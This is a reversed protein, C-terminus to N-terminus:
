RGSRSAIGTPNTVNANNQMNLPSHDEANQPVMSLLPKLTFPAPSNDPSPEVSIVVAAGRLDTPFNLGAPANTLFDEGPYNPGPQTGSFLAAEDAAAVDTFTGTSVPVGEIVAWGEYKWGKPLDPLDLGASPGGTPDLWWVGSTEHNDAGDTPTALIYQGTSGTFDNGLASRHDVTLSATSEGFDGALIHVDSPAPDNDPSPEITLVFAGANALQNRDIEFSSQDPVGNADVNFVGTSVATGDVILWGEYAFDSGLDELGTLNLQLTDTDNTSVQEKECATFVLGFAMLGMLFQKKLNM